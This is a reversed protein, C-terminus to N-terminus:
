KGISYRKGDTGRITASFLKHLQVTWNHVTTFQVLGVGAAFWLSGFRKGPAINSSPTFDLRYCGPFTGAPTVVTQSTAGVKFTGHPLYKFKIDYTYGLPRNFRFLDGVGGLSTPASRLAPFTASGGMSVLHHVNQNLPTYLRFWSGVGPLVTPLDVYLANVDSYDWRNGTALPFRSTGAIKGTPTLAITQEPYLPQGNMSGVFLPECNIHYTGPPAWAGNGDRKNWTWTKSQGPSLTLMTPSSTPEYVAWDFLETMVRWPVSGLLHIPQSGINKLTIIVVGPSNAKYVPANTTLRYPVEQAAARATCLLLLSFAISPIRSM